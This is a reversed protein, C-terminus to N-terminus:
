AGAEEVFETYGSAQWLQGKLAEYAARLRDYEDSTTNFQMTCYLQVAQIILPDAEDDKTIGVIHLDALAAAIYQLILADYAGTTIRLAMKVLELM